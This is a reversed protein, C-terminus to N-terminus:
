CGVCGWRLFAQNGVKTAVEEGQVRWGKGVVLFWVNRIGVDVYRVVVRVVCGESLIVVNVKGVM